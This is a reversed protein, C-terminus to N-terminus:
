LIVQWMTCFPQGSGPGSVRGESLRDLESARLCLTITPKGTTVRPVGQGPSVGKELWPCQGSACVTTSGNIYTTKRPPRPNPSSVALTGWGRALSQLPPHQGRPGSSASTTLALSSWGPCPNCHPTPVRPEMGQRAISKPSSVREM